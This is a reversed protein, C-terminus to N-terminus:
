HGSGDDGGSTPLPTRATMARGGGHHGERCEPLVCVSVLEEIATAM